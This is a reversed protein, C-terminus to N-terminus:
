LLRLKDRRPSMLIGQRLMQDVTEEARTRDAKYVNVMIDVVDNRNMVGDEERLIKSILTMRDRSTKAIGADVRGFDLVGTEKDYAIQHLCADVIEIVRNADDVTVEKSLRLRASAEALRVSAELQRATIPVCEANGATDRLKLYHTRLADRAEDTMTPFCTKKAYAVYKRLTQTDIPQTVSADDPPVGDGKRSCELREGYTHTALVHDALAGDRIQDPKDTLIFILDFRSLLSPPMNIQEPIPVMEDFRGLKPNAAGLLACRSKLTATIGAKAVSITQQEMAEHLASRDEKNMKDMEDVGCVGGDALVLAGAELTWQGGDMDDQVAAATLGAGTSSKGSTYIGRPSISVAKRIIVSKAIGPDGVLLIHSDGRIYTGDPFTKAVGGFMQLAIAMKVADMGYITPAVSRAIDSFITPSQSLERIKKEDDVSIKIEDYDDNQREFSNCEIFQDFVVKTGDNIARLVGNITVRTGATLKGCLDGSMEVTVTAPQEGGKLGEPSEQIKLIQYDQQKCFDPLLQFKGQGCVCDGPPEIKKGRGQKLRKINGCKLCLYAVETVRPKVESARKVMGELSIMRGIHKARIDRIETKFPIGHYRVMLSARVEDAPTSLSTSKIFANVVGKRFKDPELIAMDAYDTNFTTLKQYDILLPAEPFLREAEAVEKKCYRNLFKALDGEIDTVVM